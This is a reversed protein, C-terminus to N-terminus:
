EQIAHRATTEREWKRAIRMVEPNVKPFAPNMRELADAVTQAVLLNRTSKRDSPVVYWPAWETSCKELADEYPETYDDWRKREDLDGVEFKWNKLPDHLRELLREKQEERSIHLFFKLITVGNESLMREFDNIQAYRKSWVAKPVLEHVRVVLVDEYHSRNFIGITGHPPVAQHVRWLYDRALEYQTPKKFNSVVCGQSNLPGFVKRTLGDKGSADRGQLIVLLSQKSEAYLAVQLETLRTLIPEVLQEAEEGRPARDDVAGDDTLKVKSGPKIPKLPM